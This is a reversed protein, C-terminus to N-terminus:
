WTSFTEVPISSFRKLWTEGNKVFIKEKAATSTIRGNVVKKILTSDAQRELGKREKQEERM